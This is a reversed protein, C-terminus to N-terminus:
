CVNSLWKKDGKLDVIKEVKGIDSSLYIILKFVGKNVLQQLDYPLDQYASGHATAIVSVGCMSANLIASCDEFGGIEDTAIVDIGMCRVLTNIGKEKSIGSIVDTRPGINLTPKGQYVNAIEYREDVIGVNEGSSSVNRIVDRLMTTKGKGPPSIILTNQVKENVCIRNIISNSCGIIEHAIRINMSTVNKINKVRGNEQVVEGSIGIRNGGYATIYGSNINDQISYISNNSVRKLIETMDQSKVVYEFVKEKDLLRIRLKQNVRLRIETIYSVQIKELYQMIEPPLIKMLNEM